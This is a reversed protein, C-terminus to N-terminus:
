GRAEVPHLAASNPTQPTVAIVQGVDAVEQFWDRLETGGMIRPTRNANATRNIIGMIPRPRGTVYLEISEGDGAFLNDHGLRVNFFGSHYYTPHLVLEFTRGVAPIRPEGTPPIERPQDDADKRGGNWEPDIVRILDDELGAALNLHFRGYHLLGDDPLVLIDVAGGRELEARIRANNAVNTSQSRSPSRYGSMRASLPSTTKGIYTVKGDCVFAYLINREAAMRSLHFAIKDDALQWHGVKEFGIELLRNLLRSRTSSHPRVSESNQQRPGNPRL